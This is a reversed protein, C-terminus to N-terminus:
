SVVQHAPKQKRKLIAESLLSKILGVPLIELITMGFRVFPNKYMEIFQDMEVAKQQLAAADGGAEQIQKMYSEKMMETFGQAITHYCIEWACAYIVAAVLVVLIGVQFAKGFSIIGNLHQDRFKRVAFFVLSLAIIMSAYGVWHGNELKLTGNNFMPITVFLMAGVIAGAILGYTLVIKKM